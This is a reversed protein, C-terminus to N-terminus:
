SGSIKTGKRHGWFHLYKVKNGANVYNQLSQRNYLQESAITQDFEVLTHNCTSLAECILPYILEWDGGALGAGIKPYAIHKDSFNGAVHEFVQKIAAYDAKCGKGRWSFQTYANIITLEGVTAISYTGLKDRDGKETNLDAQLAEPFTEAITKAIGKKMTCLCNCGHIIVDFEGSKALTVLDGTQIKM